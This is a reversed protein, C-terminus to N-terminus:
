CIDILSNERVHACCFAFKTEKSIHIFTASHKWRSIRENEGCFFLKKKENESITYINVKDRHVNETCTRVNIAVTIM